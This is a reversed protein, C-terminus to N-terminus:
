FHHVRRHMWCRNITYSITFSGNGKPLPPGKSAKHMQQGHLLWNWDSTTSGEIGRADTSQTPAFELLFHHVRRHRICRNVTSSGTGIPLPPVKSAEHM